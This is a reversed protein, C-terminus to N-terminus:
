SDAILFLRLMVRGHWLLSSHYPKELVWAALFSRLFWDRKEKIVWRPASHPQSGIGLGGRWYM